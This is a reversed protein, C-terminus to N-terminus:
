KSAGTSQLAAQLEDLASEVSEVATLFKPLHKPCLEKYGERARAFKQRGVDKLERVSGRSVRYSSNIKSLLDADVHM